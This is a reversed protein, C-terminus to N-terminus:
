LSGGGDVCINQGTIFGADESLLFKITAAIERPQGIRGLPITALVAKEADSGVPHSKRFLDTEIPGPAVSNVTIQYPALEVAWTRTLGILASKAAAYSGLNKIGIIARSTLNIIRGYQIAKMEEFFAQTVQVTTRVNLDFVKYLSVLDVEGLAQREVIGVNNIIHLIQPYRNKIKKLIKDTATSDSLDCTYLEGPFDPMANRAIGVVQYGNSNLLKSTALGIGQTAGTILVINNKM